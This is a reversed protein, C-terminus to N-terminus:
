HGFGLGWRNIPAIEKSGTGRDSSRKRQRSGTIGPNSARIAPETNGKNATTTPSLRVDVCNQSQFLFPLRYRRDAHTINPVSL